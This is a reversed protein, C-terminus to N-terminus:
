VFFHLASGSVTGGKCIASTIEGIGVVRGTASWNRTGDTCSAAVGYHGTGSTCRANITQQNSGSKWRECNSPAASAPTATALTLVAVSSTLLAAALALPRQRRGSARRPVLTTSM